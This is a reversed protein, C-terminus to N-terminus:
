SWQGAPTTGSWCWPTRACAPPANERTPRRAHSAILSEAVLRLARAWHGPFTITRALREATAPDAEAAVGAITALASARREPKTITRAIREAEAPDTRAWVEAAQSLCSERNRRRTITRALSEAEAPDHAALGHIIWGFADEPNALTRATREAEALLDRWHEHRDDFARNRFALRGATNRARSQPLPRQKARLSTQIERYLTDLDLYPGHGPLGRRLLTVLEATFATYREGPVSVATRTEAAAAILYTGEILAEDAVIEAPDGGAMRGLARGSYCCDLVVVQREARTGALEERILGYPVATYSANPKESGTLALHLESAVRAVLGHGAYYVLLTDTAEAAARVIPGIMEAAGAPDTVVVCNEAPLGWVDPSRLLAALADLNATVAPLDELSPHTYRSTGILVARSAYPDPLVSV